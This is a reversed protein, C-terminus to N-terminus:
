ARAPKLDLKIINMKQGNSILDLRYGNLKSSIIMGILLFLANLVFLIKYEEVIM